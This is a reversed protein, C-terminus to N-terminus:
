RRASVIEDFGSLMIYRYTYYHCVAYSKNQILAFTDKQKVIINFISCLM